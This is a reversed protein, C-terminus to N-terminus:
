DRLRGQAGGGARVPALQGPARGGREGRIGHPPLPAYARHGGFERLAVLLYRPLELPLQQLENAEPAAPLTYLALSLSLALAFFLINDAM